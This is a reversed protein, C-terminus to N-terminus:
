AYRRRTRTSGALARPRTRLALTNRVSLAVSLAGLALAVIVYPKIADKIKPIAEEAGKTAESRILAKFAEFKKVAADATAGGGPLLKFLTVLDDQIAM